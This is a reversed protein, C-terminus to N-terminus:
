ACSTSCWRPTAGSSAPSTGTWSRSGDRPWRPPACRRRWSSSRPPSGERRTSWSRGAISRSTSCGTGARSSHLCIRAEPCLLESRKKSVRGTAEYELFAYVADHWGPPALPELNFRADIRALQALRAEGQEVDALLLSALGANQQRLRQLAAPDGGRAGIADALYAANRAAEADTPAVARSFAALARQARGPQGALLHVEAAEVLVDIDVDPYLIPETMEAIADSAGAFRGLFYLATARHQACLPMPACEAAALALDPAGRGLGALTAQACEGALRYSAVSAEVGGV